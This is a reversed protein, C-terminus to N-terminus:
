TKRFTQPFFTVYIHCNIYAGMLFIAIDFAGTVTPVAKYKPAKARM